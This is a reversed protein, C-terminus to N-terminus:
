DGEATARFQGRDTVIYLDEGDTFMRALKHGVLDHFKMGSDYWM